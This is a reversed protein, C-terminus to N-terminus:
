LSAHSWYRDPLQMLPELDFLRVTQKAEEEAWRLVEDEDVSKVERNEMLIDGQVMVTEVDAARSFYALRQTEMFFPVTHPKFMNVVIIDADKGAEISGIRDDLGLARAGDITAMELVKGVPMYNADHKIKRHLRPSFFIDEWLSWNRDLGCFDSGFGVVVGADIMEPVPCRGEYLYIRHARPCHAVRTNTRALIDVSEVDLPWCHALVTKPGLLPIGEEDLFKVATGYAHVTFGVDHEDMIRRIGEAQPRAYKVNDEDFVPDAPNPNLLRSASAWMRVRDTNHANWTGIAESAGELSEEFSV